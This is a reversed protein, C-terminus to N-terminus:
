EDEIKIYKKLGKESLDIEFRDGTKFHTQNMAWNPLRLIGDGFMVTTNNNLDDRTVGPILGKDIATYITRMSVTEDFDPNNQILLSIKKPSLHENKIKDSIFSALDKNSEIKANPGGLGMRNECLEQAYDPDYQGDERTNRNLENYISSRHVNIRKAIESKSYGADLMKKIICREEYTIQSFSRTM